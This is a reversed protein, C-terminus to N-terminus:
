QLPGRFPSETGHMDQRSPSGKDACAPPHPGFSALIWIQFLTQVHSSKTVRYTHKSVSIKTVKVNQTDKWLGLSKNTEIGAALNVGHQTTSETIVPNDLVDPLHCTPTTPGGLQPTVGEGGDSRHLSPVPLISLDAM